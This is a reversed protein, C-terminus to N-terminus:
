WRSRCREIRRCRRINILSLKHGTDPIYVEATYNFVGGTLSFGNIGGDQPLAFLWGIVSGLPTLGQLDWGIQPKIRSVATYTRGKQVIIYSDMDQQMIDVGNVRGNVRGKFSQPQGGVLCTLGDGYWGTGCQCCFGPNYDVCEAMSHCQSNGVVCSSATEPNLDTNLQRTPGMVTDLGVLPGVKYIWLGPLDTNSWKNMNISQDKGSGKVNFYQGEGSIM